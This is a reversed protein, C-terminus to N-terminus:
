FPLNDTGYIIEDDIRKIGDKVIDTIDITNYSVKKIQMTPYQRRLERIFRIASVTAAQDPNVEYEFSDVPFSGQQLCHTDYHIYHVEIHVKM